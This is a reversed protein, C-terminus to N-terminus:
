HPLREAAAHFSTMRCDRIMNLQFVVPLFLVKEYLSASESKGHREFKKCQAKWIDTLEPSITGHLRALPFLTSISIRKCLNLGNKRSAKM